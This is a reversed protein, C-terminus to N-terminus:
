FTQLSWIGKITPELTIRIRKGHREAIGQLHHVRKVVEMAAEVKAELNERKDFAEVWSVIADWVGSLYEPNTEYRKELSSDM